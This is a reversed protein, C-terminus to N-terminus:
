AVTIQFHDLVLVYVVDFADMFKKCDSSDEIEKVVGMM